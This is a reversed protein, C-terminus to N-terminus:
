VKKVIVLTIDDNAPATRTFASLASEIKDRMGAASRSVHQSVVKTLREIGFEEGEPNEAETVGDSFIIICEGSQLVVEGREFDTNLMIGLPFGGSDLDEVRGDAHVVLPPNHGDNIFGFNGTEPELEGAFFTIFRNTPTNHALYNNVASIMEPLSSNAAAQAHIAAHLSSM